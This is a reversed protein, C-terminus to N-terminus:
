DVYRELVSLFDRLKRSSQSSAQATKADEVCHHLHQDILKESLSKIAKRSAILQNLIDACDRDSEIMKEISSLQGLIKRVRVRLAKKDQASHEEAM